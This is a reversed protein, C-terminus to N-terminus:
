GPFDAPTVDGAIEYLGDITHQGLAKSHARVVEQSPADYVCYTHVVGDDDVVVHSHEWTIESFEEETLVRSRRGVFPMQDSGVEFSRVILYRPVPSDYQAGHWPTLRVIRLSEGREKTAAQSPATPAPSISHRPKMSGMFSKVVKGMLTWENAPVANRVPPQARLYSIVAALDEDAMDGFPM